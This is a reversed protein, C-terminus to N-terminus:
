NIGLMLNYILRIYQMYFFNLMCMYKTEDSLGCFEWFRSACVCISDNCDGTMLSPILVEGMKAIGLCCGGSSKPLLLCFSKEQNM